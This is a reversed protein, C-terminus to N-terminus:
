LLFARHNPRRHLRLGAHPSKCEGWYYELTFPTNATRGVMAEYIEWGMVKVAKGELIKIIQVKVTYKVEPKMWLKFSNSTTSRKLLNYPLEELKKSGPRLIPVWYPKVTKYIFPEKDGEAVSVELFHRSNNVFLGFKKDVTDFKSKHRQVPACSLTAWLFAAVVISIGIWKMAVFFTRM